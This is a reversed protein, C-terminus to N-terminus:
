IKEQLAERLNKQAIMSNRSSREKYLEQLVPDSGFGDASPLEETASDPIPPNWFILFLALVTVAFSWSLLFRDKHAPRQFQKRAANLARDRLEQPPDPVRYQNAIKKM